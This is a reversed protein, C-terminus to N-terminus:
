AGFTKTDSQFSIKGKSLLIEVCQAYGNSAALHLPTEGNSNTQNLLVSDNVKDLLYLACNEHMNTLALHLCNCNHLNTRMLDADDVLLELIKLSGHQAALMVATDCNNTLTNINCKECMLLHACECENNIACIHLPTRGHVDSLDVISSKYQEILVIVCCDHGNMCAFHLPSYKASISM